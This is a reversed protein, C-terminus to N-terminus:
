SKPLDSVYGRRAQVKYTTNKTRVRLTHFKGDPPHSPSFGMVYQHNLEDAISLRALRNRESDGAASGDTVTGVLGATM